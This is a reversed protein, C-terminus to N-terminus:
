RVNDFFNPYSINVCNSDDLEVGAGAAGMVALAMAIRHDGYTKCAAFQKPKGGAIILTDGESKFAGPSLKNFETVIAALRDSEKVRLEGVDRIITTGEAFAAAVALIPIEDILRPIENGGIEIERLRASKILLDGVREGLDRRENRIEIAAGMKILADVLGTRTENLGINKLVLESGDLLTALVIWFAASSIDNPIEIVSPMQLKTAPYITLGDLRVGCAKLMLETHDRCPPIIITTPADAFLGALLISSKVQASAIATQYTIGRLKSGNVTLPLNSNSFTAGMQSLPDIVRKLPRKKLSDDGTFTTRFSQAATLGMLLRLTTGSNGADLIETPAKLGHLGVGHILLSKEAREITVGLKEMCAITSLCDAGALYNRVEVNGDGLSGLIIARHTISKDSPIKIEGKLAGRKSILM